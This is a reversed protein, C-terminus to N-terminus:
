CTMFLPEPHQPSPEQLVRWEDAELEEVLGALKEMRAVQQDHKVQKLTSAVQYSFVSECLFRESGDELMEGAGKPYSFLAKRPPALDSVSFGSGTVSSGSVGGASSSSSSAAMEARGLRPARVAQRLRRAPDRERHMSPRRAPPLGRGSGTDPPPAPSPSRNGHCRPRGRPAGGVAGDNRSKPPKQLIFLTLDCLGPVPPCHSGPSCGGPTQTGEPAGAQIEPSFVLFVRIKGLKNIETCLESVQCGGCSVGSNGNGREGGQLEGPNQPCVLLIQCLARRSLVSGPVSSGNRVNRHFFFGWM